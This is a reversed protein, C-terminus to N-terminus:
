EDYGSIELAGLLDFKPLNKSMSFKESSIAKLMKSTMSLVGENKM